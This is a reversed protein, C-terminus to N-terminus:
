KYNSKSMREIDKDERNAEELVFLIDSYLSFENKSGLTFYENIDNM